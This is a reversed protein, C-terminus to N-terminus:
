RYTFFSTDIGPTFSVQEVTEAKDNASQATEEEDPFIDDRNFSVEVGVFDFDAKIPADPKKLTVTVATVTQYELLIGEAIRYAARELLNDSGATMIRKVTKVIASYSVTDEIRDSIFAKEMDTEAKLDIEFFQGNEKEEPNVGHFAFVRLGKILISGM